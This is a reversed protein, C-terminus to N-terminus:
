PWKVTLAYVEQTGVDRTFLASGDPAVGIETIDYPDNVQQLAKLSAITEVAHDAIRIRLAKPDAGLTTCYLYKGDLSPEWAGFTAPDSVLDSWKGSTLDFLSFKAQDETAAVLKDQAVFWAGVLGQSDSVVSATGTRVDIIRSQLYAKEGITKGPVLSGVVVANGDPSWDPASAYDSLRQPTGGNMSILYAVSEPTSFAVRTGDPSIRPEVVVQPPYTLQLRDSGDARSRWLTHEPFSIYAMWKGDRSFTTDYASIGGLYPVFEGSKPDYRVLEGKAKSGTVFIQKEDKSVTGGTYSLPGSTLRVPSGFARGIAGGERVVWLDWTGQSRAQFTVYKENPSWRACCVDAPVSSQGGKLVERLGTGDAAVEYVAANEGSVGDIASFLVRDGSPSARPAYTLLQPVQALKHPNSGDRGAVYVASGLTYLLRGDPFLSADGVEMDGLRRATGAPLSVLWMSVRQSFAGGVLVLLASGDRALGAIAPNVLQTPLQATEGGSVSVQVIRRNGALGETLYIRAGDTELDGIDEGPKPEGDNTLQIVSEVVPIAPPRSFWIALAVAIAVVVAGAIWVWRTQPKAAAFAGTPSSTADSLAELAFALDSASHFRQEPNKEVCRQVVRQLAPPIGPVTQSIVPPEENLIASMTDASTPKHFARKGTLMEYLIAGLAFLDARGDAAHGRVQEPSMYGVTGLVVGPDTGETLTPTASGSPDPAQTLKALGFDLIKIRGDKTLFLNEPKLDRHVIGKEHAAALGHATQIGYEVAKRVPLPGRLLQDRLTSGELLESVLYPSGEHTGLQYVALINPHNLAAAARAEQEFRRLRDPDRSLYAPLVKIAVDRGLQPDRARYVEGMGGAGLPAIIEYPGLKTGPALAM